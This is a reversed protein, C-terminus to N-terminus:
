FGVMTSTTHLIMHAFGVDAALTGVVEVKGTRPTVTLNLDDLPIVDGGVDADMHWQFRMSTLKASLREFPRLVQLFMDLRVGFVRHHHARRVLLVPITGILIAM